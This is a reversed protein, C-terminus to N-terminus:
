PQPPALNIEEIIPPTSTQSRRWPARPLWGMSFVLIRPSPNQATTTETEPQTDNSPTHPTYHLLISVRSLTHGVLGTTLRRARGLTNDVMNLLAETPKRELRRVYNRAMEIGFEGIFEITRSLYTTVVAPATPLIIGLVFPLGEKKITPLVNTRFAYLATAPVIAEQFPNSDESSRSTNTNLNALITSPQTDIHHMLALQSNRSLQLSALLAANMYSARTIPGPEASLRRTMDEFFIVVEPTPDINPFPSAISLEMRSLSSSGAGDKM